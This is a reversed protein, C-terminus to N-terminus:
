DMKKAIELGQKATLAPIVRIDFYDDWDATIQMIPAVTDTEFITVVTPDDSQLWYEGIVKVGEPYIWKQRREIRVKANGERVKLLAVFLM